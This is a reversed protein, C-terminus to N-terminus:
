EKSYYGDIIVIQKGTARLTTWRCVRVANYKSSSWSRSSRISQASTISTCISIHSVQRRQLPLNEHDHDFLSSTVVSLSGDLRRAQYSVVHCLVTLNCPVFSLFNSFPEVVFISPFMCFPKTLIQPRSCVSISPMRFTTNSDNM